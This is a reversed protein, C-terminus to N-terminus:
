KRAREVGSPRILLLLKQIAAARNAEATAMEVRFYDLKEWVPLMQETSGDGSRYSVELTAVMARQADHLVKAQAKKRDSAEIVQLLDSVQARLSTVIESRRLELQSIVLKRESREGGGAINRAMKFVMSLPNFSDAGIYTTWLKARQLKVAEDIVKLERSNNVVILTLQEVCAPSSELCPPAEDSQAQITLAATLTLLSCCLFKRM